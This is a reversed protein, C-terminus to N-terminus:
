VDLVLGDYATLYGKAEAKALHPLMTPSMHTLMVRDAALRPRNADITAFDLHNKPASTMTYCEIIFLHADRAVDVLADTWMTDGSYALLRRGDGLRVGTSPAGSPHTVEHSQAELHGFRYATRCPLDVVELTYRWKSASSGPFFVEMAARLREGTGVPGVITLPRTRQGEFQGDLLLFPLGGFHDGHLHTLLVLDIRSPDLGLRKLTVLSTAGFDVAVTTDGSEIWFCTNARGGSGFADGCGVVTLRM